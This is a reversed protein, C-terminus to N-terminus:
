IFVKELEFNFDCFENKFIEFVEFYMKLVKM